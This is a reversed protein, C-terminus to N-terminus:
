SMRKVFPSIQIDLNDKQTDELETHSQLYSEIIQSLSRNHSVAYQKAKEIVFENLKLTLKKDMVFLKLVFLYAIIIPM